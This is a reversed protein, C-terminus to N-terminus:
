LNYAYFSISSISCSQIIVLSASNRLYFGDSYPCSLSVNIWYSYESLTRYYPHNGKRSLIMFITSNGSCQSSGSDLDCLPSLFPCCLSFLSSSCLFPQFSLLRVLCWWWYGLLACLRVCWVWSWCSSTCKHSWLNIYSYSSWAYSNCSCDIIM